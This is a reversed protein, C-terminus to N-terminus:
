YRYTLKLLLGNFDFNHTTSLATTYVAGVELRSPVLVANAGVAMTVINGTGEFTGFDFFGPLNTQDLNVHTSHAIWNFEILPYLWCNVRRDLHLTGYFLNTNTDGNGVPFQYGATALVHFEGFEKGVTAYPALKAPGHGQFVAASGTPAEWRLGATLLFQNPVDEILTYQGFGGVNLFGDRENRPDRDFFVRLPDLNASRHIHAVAYGGQNLGVALRDSLAVTLGAGYLQIDATPLRPFSSTWDSIFLPYLETVARPDVAMIPNSMYGIFRDFNHNGALFGGNNNSSGHDRFYNPSSGDPVSYSMDAGAPTIVPAPPLAPQAAAVPPLAPQAAVAPPQAPQGAAAPQGITAAGPGQALGTSVLLVLGM